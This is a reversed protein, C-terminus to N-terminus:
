KKLFNLDIITKIYNNYFMEDTVDVLEIMSETLEKHVKSIGSQRYLYNYSISLGKGEKTFTVNWEGFITDIGNKKTYTILKDFYPKFKVDLENKSEKDLNRM